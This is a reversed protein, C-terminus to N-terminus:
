AAPQPPPPPMPVDIVNQKAIEEAVGRPVVGKIFEAAANEDTALEMFLQDYAATQKFEERVEDSKVFRNGDKIGYSMLIIRQFEKILSKVDEAKIIQRISEELGTKHELELELIETRTLNFYYTHTVMEGDYDEYTIERKLM